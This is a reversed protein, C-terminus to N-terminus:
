YRPNSFLHHIQFAPTLCPLFGPTSFPCPVLAFPSHPLPLLVSSAACPMLQSCPPSVTFSSPVSSFFSEPLSTSNNKLLAMSSHSGALALCPGELVAESETGLARCCLLVAGQSALRAM